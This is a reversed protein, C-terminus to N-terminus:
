VECFSSTKRSFGGLISNKDKVQAPTVHKLSAANYVLHEVGFIV